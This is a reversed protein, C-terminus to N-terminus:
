HTPQIYNGPWAPGTVLPACYTSNDVGVQSNAAPNGTNPQTYNGPWAPGAIGGMIEEQVALRIICLFRFVSFLKPQRLQGRVLTELNLTERGVANSSGAIKTRFTLNSSM